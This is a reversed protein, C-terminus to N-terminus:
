NNGSPQTELSELTVAMIVPATQDQGKRFEIKEIAETRKPLIPTYRVQQNRVAFAFESGPVDVRRIYDAFHVGNLLEHDETEGDAYHLRVVVSVSQNQQYPFGWGSVLGLLHIARASGNVPVSVSRPMTRSIGGIPGFLLIANPTKGGNPDILNFPVGKHTKPSWDDFILREAEGETSFFMGRDSAVTAVKRLDLPLFKGRQTLFELLNVIDIEPVQKELGEPMLSKRSAQMEEIDERLVVKKKGEVDFLEIATKSESALLGTTVLGDVTLVTYVRFNGEVDRSPDIIHTLLEAKPHVAMGTLDPGIKTGEGSHVHCKSCQKTYVEKGAKPDGQKETLPLMATLVKQRDPNPLAGGRSLLERAQRQIARSPHSALAEKQDLSLESLQVTGKDIADLLSRTSDPRSILVSIGAARTLPTMSAFRDSLETGLASSQSLVLARVLGVALEPSTQPTIRKLVDKVASEEQSRFEVLQRAAQLRKDLAL